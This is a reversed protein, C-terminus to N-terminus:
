KLTVNRWLSSVPWILQWLLFLAVNLCLWIFSYLFMLSDFMTIWGVTVMTVIVTAMFWTSFIKLLVIFWDKGRVSMINRLFQHWPCCIYYSYFPTWFLVMPFVVPWHARRLPTIVWTSLSDGRQQTPSFSGSLEGKIGASNELRSLLFSRDFTNFAATLDLFVLM